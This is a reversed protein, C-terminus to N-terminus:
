SHIADDPLMLVFMCNSTAQSCSIGRRLIKTPTDDPFNLTLKLHHLADDLTRLKEEGSVFKAGDVSVGSTAAGLLVFYEASGTSAPRDQLKLTRMAQLEDRYKAITTSVKDEGGL